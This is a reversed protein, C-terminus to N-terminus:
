YITRKLTMINVQLFNYVIITNRLDFAKRDKMIRPGLFKVCYFYLCCIALTPLPSNMLPWDDV